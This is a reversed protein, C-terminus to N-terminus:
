GGKFHEKKATGPIEKRKVSRRKERQNKLSAYEPNTVYNERRNMRKLGEPVLNFQKDYMLGAIGIDSDNKKWILIYVKSIIM